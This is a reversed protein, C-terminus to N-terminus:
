DTHESQLQLQPGIMRTKPRVDEWIFFADAAQELLMGLGDNASACAHSRALEIFATSRNKPDRSYSFDYAHTSTSFASAPVPATEGKLGASTANIVLDFPSKHAALQDFSIAEINGYEAFTKALQEAKEVTRNAILLREPQEALLPHLVGRTAGGAGLILIQTNAPAYGINKKLDQLLGSGDTNFGALQGDALFNITNCAGAVRAAESVTDCMEFAREKFPLTINCGQGGADRFSRVDAEFSEDVSLTASYEVRREAQSAFLTHIKPSLSHEVPNGFLTYRNIM